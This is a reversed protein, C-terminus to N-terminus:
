DDVYYPTRKDSEYFLEKKHSGYELFALSVIKGKLIKIEGLVDKKCFSCLWENEPYGIAFVKQMSPNGVHKGKGWKIRDGIRYTPLDSIDGFHFQWSTECSKGCKPCDLRGEQLIAYLGMNVGKYLKGTM